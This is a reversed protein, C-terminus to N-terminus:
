FRQSLWLGNEFYEDETDGTVKERFTTDQVLFSLPHATDRGRDGWTKVM